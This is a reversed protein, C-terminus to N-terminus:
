FLYIASLIQDIANVRRQERPGFFFFQAGFALTSVAVLSAVMSLTLTLWMADLTGSVAM